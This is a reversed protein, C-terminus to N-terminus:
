RALTAPPPGEFSFTVLDAGAVSVKVKWDRRSREKASDPKLVFDRPLEFRARLEVRDSFRRAELATTASCWQREAYSRSRRSRWYEARAEVRDVPLDSAVVLVLGVSRPELALLRLRATLWRGPGRELRTRGLWAGFALPAFALVGLSQLDHAMLANLLGGVVVASLFWHAYKMVTVAALEDPALLRSTDLVFTEGTRKM